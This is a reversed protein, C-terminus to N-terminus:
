KNLLGQWPFANRGDQLMIRYDLRAYVLYRGMYMGCNGCVGRWPFSGESYWLSQSTSVMIGGDDM